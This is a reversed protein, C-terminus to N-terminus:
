DSDSDSGYDALGGLGTSSAAPKTTSSSSSKTTSTTSLPKNGSLQKLSQLINQPIISGNSKVQSAAAAEAAQQNYYDQYYQQQLQEETYGSLAMASQPDYTQEPQEPVVEEEGLRRQRKIEDLGTEEMMRKQATYEVPLESEFDQQEPDDQGTTQAEKVAEPDQFRPDDGVMDQFVRDRSLQTETAWRVNITEKNDLSQNMMAEKAFEASARSKYDVFAVGRQRLIHIRGIEGWLGFHKRVVQESVNTIRGIYLTKNTSSFGGVGGMDQRFDSFKDRGFCDVTTEVEDNVTPVRHWMSCNPGQACMGKAFYVCFYASPNRSGATSGSDKAPDCRFKAHAGKKSWDRELGSYRNHWINYTGGEPQKERIYADLTAKDIQRRAPPM